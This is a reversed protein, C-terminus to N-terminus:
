KVQETLQPNRMAKGELLSRMVHYIEHQEMLGSFREAGPGKAHLAVDDSGHSEAKRHLLASQYFDPHETDMDTIDHRGNHREGKGMGLGLGNAYGLTTFPKGDDALIAAGQDDRTIGLIPNGRTPYGAMSLTHSHDATVIILTNQDDTLQDALEVAQALMHTESLARHASGKHHGHDIRAGEVVLFYGVSEQRNILYHLASETMDLLSPQEQREQEYDMHGDAFVGLVPHQSKIQALQKKDTLYLGQNFEQQWGDVFSGLRSLGGGMALDLGNKFGQTMLQEAISQCGFVHANIHLDWPGEWGRDASHAYTAAPTAHTLRATTVVATDINRLAAWEFLTERRHKPTGYCWGRSQEPGVSIVGARTKVGTMIASMTGASDPTQQDTNYTKILASHPFREFSLFNEEGSFGQQQASYIRAATLTTISMGDGLFLIINLPYRQESKSLMQHYALREALWQQGQEYNPKEASYSIAALSFLGSLFFLRIM